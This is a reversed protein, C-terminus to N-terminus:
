GPNDYSQVIGMKILLKHVPKKVQILVQKASENLFSLDGQAQLELLFHYELM